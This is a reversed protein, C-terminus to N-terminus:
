DNGIGPFANHVSSCIAIPFDPTDDLTAKRMGITNNLEKLDIQLTIKLASLDSYHGQFSFRPFSVEYEKFTAL